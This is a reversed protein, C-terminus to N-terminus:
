MSVYIIVHHYFVPIIANKKKKKKLIIVGVNTTNQLAGQPTDGASLSFQVFNWM